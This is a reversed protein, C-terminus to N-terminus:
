HVGLKYRVGYDKRVAREFAQMSALVATFRGPSPPADLLLDLEALAKRTEPKATAIIRDLDEDPITALSM